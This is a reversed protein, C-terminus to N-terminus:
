FVKAAAGAFDTPAPNGKQRASEVAILHNLDAPHFFIKKGAKQAALLEDRAVEGGGIGIMIDSHEVMRTSTPSLRTTGELLGGWTQDEIYFAHDVFESASYKLAMSSVIGMTDFGREKALSYVGGIGDPTVGINVLVEAPNHRDLVSGAVRLLAAEDEYGANSYGVFTLIKRGDRALFGALADDGSRGCITTTVCASVLVVLAFPLLDLVSINM